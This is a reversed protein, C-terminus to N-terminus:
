MIRESDALQKHISNFINEQLTASHFVEFTKTGNILHKTSIYATKIKHWILAKTINM